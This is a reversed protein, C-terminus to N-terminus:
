MFFRVYMYRKTQTYFMYLVVLRGTFVAEFRNVESRTSDGKALRSGLPIMSKRAFIPCNVGGGGGGGGVCVCM